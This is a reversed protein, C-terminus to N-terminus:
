RADLSAVTEPLADLSAIVADPAPDTAVATPQPAVQIVRMGAARAGAVDLIADDGVHVAGAPDAGLARLTLWFIDPAPKRVGVEDSFTTHAFCGLLGYRDLLRRLTVGPTRMTNSVVALTLGRARLARLAGSAAPDVAPPVELAPRAYADLLADWVPGPLRDPLAPDVAALIVRVHAAVPVDRHASWVMGLYTASAEYGRELATRAVPEGAAALIAEFAALRARRYRDDSGPGDHLLTGWFDV